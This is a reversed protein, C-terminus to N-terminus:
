YEFFCLNPLVRELFSLVTIFRWIKPLDMSHRVQKCIFIIQIDKGEGPSRVTGDTLSESYKRLYPLNKIVRNSAYFILEFLLQCM